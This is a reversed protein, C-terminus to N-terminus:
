VQVKMEARAPVPNEDVQPTFGEPDTTDNLDRNGADSSPCCYRRCSDGFPGNYGYVLANFFGNMNSTWIHMVFLGFNPNTSDFTQQLRNVTGFIWSGILIIPYLCLRRVINIMAADNADMNAQPSWLMKLVKCFTYGGSGESSGSNKLKNNEEILNFVSAGLQYYLFCILGIAIWLWIYFCYYRMADGADSDDIWCWAGSEGYHNGDAFPICTWFLAFGWNSAWIKYWMWKEHEQEEQQRQAEREEESKSDKEEEIEDVVEARTFSQWLYYAIAVVWGVSTLEFFSGWIAQFYCLSSGDSPDGMLMAFSYNVDSVALMFVLRSHIKKLLIEGNDRWGRYSIYLMSCAIFGSGIMSIVSTVINIATLADQQSSSFDSDGGALLVRKVVPSFEM